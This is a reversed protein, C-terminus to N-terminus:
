SRSAEPCYIEWSGGGREGSAIRRFGLERWRSVWPSDDDGLPRTTAALLVEVDPTAVRRLETPEPVANVATVLDFTADAFPLRLASAKRFSLNPHRHRARARRLMARSTDVGVVPASPHRAAVMAAAGGTGTGIDLVTAPPRCRELGEGFVALHSAVDEYGQWRAAALNFYTWSVIRDVFRPRGRLFIDAAHRSRTESTHRELWEVTRARM